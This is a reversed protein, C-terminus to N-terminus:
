YILYQWTALHHSHQFFVMFIIILVAANIFNLYHLLWVPVLSFYILQSNGLSNTSGSYIFLGFTCLANVIILWFIRWGQWFFQCIIQNKSQLWVTLCIANRCMHDFFDILRDIIAAFCKMLILWIQALCHSWLCM